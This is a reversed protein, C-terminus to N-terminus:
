AFQVCVSLSKNAHRCYMTTITHYQVVKGSYPNPCSCFVSGGRLNEVTPITFLNWRAGVCSGGCVDDGHHAM